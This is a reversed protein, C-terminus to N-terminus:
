TSFYSNDKLKDCIENCDPLYSSPLITNDNLQRYDICLRITGDKKPVVVIPSRFPSKSVQIIGEKLLDDLAAKVKEEYAIPIRRNPLCVGKECDKLVINHNNGWNAWNWKCRM